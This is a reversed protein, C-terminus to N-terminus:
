SFYGFVDTALNVTGGSGNHPVPSAAGDGGLMVLNPVTEGPSLNLNSSKPLHQRDHQRNRDM